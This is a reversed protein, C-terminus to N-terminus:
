AKPKVQNFKKSLIFGVEKMIKHGYGFTSKEKESGNWIGEWM